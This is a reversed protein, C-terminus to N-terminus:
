FRNQVGQYFHSVNQLLLKKILSRSTPSIIGNGTQLSGNGTKYSGQLARLVRTVVGNFCVQSLRTVCYWSVYRKSVRLVGKYYGQLM